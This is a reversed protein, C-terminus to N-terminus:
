VDRALHISSPHPCTSTTVPNPVRALRRHTEEEVVRRTPPRLPFETKYLPHRRGSGRCRDSDPAQEWVSSSFDANAMRGVPHTMMMLWM